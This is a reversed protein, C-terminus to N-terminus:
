RTGRKPVLTLNLHAESAGRLMVKRTQYGSLSITVETDLLFPNNGAWPTKGLELAGARITAGPPESTIVIPPGSLEPLADRLQEPLEITPIRPASAPKIVMATVAIGVGSLVLGGLVIPVWRRSPTLDPRYATPAVYGRPQPKRALELTPEAAVARAAPAPTPAAAPAPRGEVTGDARLSPGGLLEPQSGDSDPHGDDSM